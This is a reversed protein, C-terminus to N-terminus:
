SYKKKLVLAAGLAAASLGCLAIYLAINSDDGTKPNVVPIEEAKFVWDVEGIRNAYENGLDIPVNLEVDLTTKGGKSFEGLLVWDALGDLQEPSADFLVKEGQKVTLSLQHLFDQMSAVTETALVDDDPINKEKDHALAKMYIRVTYKGERVNQVVVQETVTDGPMVGKFGDNFLDTDTYESGPLFVFKEAGGEYTVSPSAAFATVSLSLMLM